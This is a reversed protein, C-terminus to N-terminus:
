IQTSSPDEENTPESDRILAFGFAVVLLAVMTMVFFGIFMTMNINDCCAGYMLFSQSLIVSGSGGSTLGLGWNKLTSIKPKHIRLKHIRPKSIKPKHIRLKPIKPKGLVRITVLSGFTALAIITASALYVTDREVGIEWDDDEREAEIVWVEDTTESRLIVDVEPLRESDVPYPYAVAVLVLGAFVTTAVAKLLRGSWSGKEKQLGGGFHFAIYSLVFATMVMLSLTEARGPPGGQMIMGYALHHVAYVASAAGMIIGVEVLVRIGRNSPLDVLLMAGTLFGIFLIKSIQPM